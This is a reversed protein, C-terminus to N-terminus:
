ETTLRKYQEQLPYRQYGAGVSPLECGGIVGGEPLIADTSETSVVNVTVHVYVCMCTHMCAVHVTQSQVHLPMPTTHYM